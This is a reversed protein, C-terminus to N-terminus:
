KNKDVIVYLVIWDAMVMYVKMSESNMRNMVIDNVCACMYEEYM